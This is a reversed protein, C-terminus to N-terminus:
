AFSPDTASTLSALSAVQLSVYISLLAYWAGDATINYRYMFLFFHMGHEM